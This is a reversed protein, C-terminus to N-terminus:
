PKKRNRWWQWTWEIWTLPLCCVAVVAFIGLFHIIGTSGDAMHIPAYESTDSM